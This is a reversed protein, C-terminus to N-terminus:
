AAAPSAPEGFLELVTSNDVTGLCAGLATSRPNSMWRALSSSTSTTRLTATTVYGILPADVSGFAGNQPWNLQATTQNVPLVPTVIAM